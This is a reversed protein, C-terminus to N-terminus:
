VCFLEGNVINNLYSELTDDTLNKRKYRWWTIPLRNKTIKEVLRARILKSDVMTPKWHNLYRDPCNLLDISLTDCRFGRNGMEKKVEEHRSVYEGYSFSPPELSM